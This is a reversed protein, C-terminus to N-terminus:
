IPRFQFFVLVTPTGQGRGYHTQKDTLFLTVTALYGLYHSRACTGKRDTYVTSVPVAILGIMASFPPPLANEM